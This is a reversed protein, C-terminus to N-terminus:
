KRRERTVWRFFNILVFFLILEFVVGGINLLFINGIIPKYPYLGGDPQYPSRAVWIAFLNIIWAIGKSIYVNRAKVQKLREKDFWDLLWPPVNQNNLTLSIVHGSLWALSAFFALFIGKAILQNTIIPGWENSM